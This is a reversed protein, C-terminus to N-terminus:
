VIEEAKDKKSCKDYTPTEFVMEEYQIQEGENLCESLEEQTDEAIPSQSTLVTEEEMTEIACDEKEKM